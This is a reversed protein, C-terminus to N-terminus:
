LSTIKKSIFNHFDKKDNDLCVYDRFIAQPFSISLPPPNQYMTEVISQNVVTDSNIHTSIHTSVDTETKVQGHDLIIKVRETKVKDQSSERISLRSVYPNVSQILDCFPKHISETLQDYGLITKTLFYLNHISEFKLEERAELITKYWSPLRQSSELFQFTEPIESPHLPM